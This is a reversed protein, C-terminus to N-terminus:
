ELSKLLQEVELITKRYLKRNPKTMYDAEASVELLLEKGKSQQETDLYYKALELRAEYYSYPKDISKLHEEAQDPHGEKYLAFGYYFQTLTGYFESKELLQEAQQIVSEYAKLQTFCAILQKRAHMDNQIKDQLSIEYHTIANQYDGAEFYADALNIRNEYTDSFELRKNLDKIRRTPNIINTVNSQITQADKKTLVQTILYVLCGVLPLFLILLYWYFPRGTKYVHYFCYLQLAIILYYYIM